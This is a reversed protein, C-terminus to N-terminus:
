NIYYLIVTMQLLKIFYLLITKIFKYYPCLIDRSYRVHINIYEFYINLPVIIDFGNITVIISSYMHLIIM